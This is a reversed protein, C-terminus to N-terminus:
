DIFEGGRQFKSSENYRTCSGNRFGSGTSDLRCNSMM